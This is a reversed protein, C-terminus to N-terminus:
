GSGMFSPECYQRRLKLKNCVEAAAADSNLPGVKLRYFIGKGPGMDVKSFEPTLDGLIAQHARKLQAWGRDAANQSRYSALHVAPQMGSRKSGAGSKASAPAVNDASPANVPTGAPQMNHEISTREKAYEDPSILKEDKLMELKRVADAAEMLGKPPAGPNTVSVPASPMLADLIMTREASHQSVSLARMELARGIARLRGSIQEASPVSRDLGSAAPPSTLPLLAGINAQRRTNFEELTILSQDRLLALTKFRSVVNAENSSFTPALGAARAVSEPSPPPATRGLLAPGASAGSVAPNGADVPFGPPAALTEGSGSSEMGGVIGGSELLALNVSAIEAVPRTSLEKWVILQKSNDPRIALISEYMERAKVARGTNQYIFGLALLAHVDKPDVRLAKNFHVEAGPYNGKSMEAIGLEARDNSEFLMGTDWFSSDVIGRGESYGACAGLGYAALAVVATRKIKGKM